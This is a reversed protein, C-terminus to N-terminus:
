REWTYFGRGVKRGLWGAEVYKTLLPCTRYKSDGGLGDRLVETIALCTDLGIYDALRLPGMPVNTGLKLATDIDEVTGIGEYLAQVAENIYPMLVRNVIFGPIDKSQVTTKGVAASLELTAKLTQESTALGPIIEVLKMIPVPNMFHMGIVKDPRDTKAALATISLSSTNTALIAEPRTVQLLSEFIRVKLELNESVAEVVFDADAHVAIDASPVIRAIAAEADEATIPSRDSAALKALSKRITGLGREVAAMSVDSLRVEFGAQAVVQAIGSGMQGAGVVGVTGIEGM